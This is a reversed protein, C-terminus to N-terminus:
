RLVAILNNILSHLYEYRTEAYGLCAELRHLRKLKHSHELERLDFLVVESEDDELTIDVLEEYILKKLKKASEKLNSPKLKSILEGKESLTAIYKKWIQILTKNDKGINEKMAKKSKFFDLIGM